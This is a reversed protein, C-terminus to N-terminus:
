TVLKIMLEKYQEAIKQWTYEKALKKYANEVRKALEAENTLAFNIKNALDDVDDNKFFVVESDNFVAMNSDINSAIVPTKLTVVELLMMSMAEQLSPFVFFRSQAVLDFLKKKDKILGLFEVNVGESLEMIEKKYKDTQDLSGAIKLEIDLNLKKIAKLLLHLGKIDYIRGAAFFIYNGKKTNPKQYTDNLDTSIGNPIYLITQKYKRKIFDADPKSVSIIEHSFKLSLLESFRFFWNHIRSFKPDNYHHVGHFTIILKNNLRLFPIIFGSSAHHIHILDYRHTLCHFLCKLTYVLIDVSGKGFKKFVIQKYGDFSIKDSSTFSSVSLVTFDFDNKLQEVINEGVAATGGFAPLGKLGIVAIKKKM